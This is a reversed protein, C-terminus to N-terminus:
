FTDTATGWSNCMERVPTLVIISTHGDTQSKSIIELAAEIEGQNVYKLQRDKYKQKEGEAQILPIHVFNFGVEPVSAPIPTEYKGKYIHRNLLDAIDRPVRYQTTLFVKAESSSVASVDLLSNVKEPLPTPQAKRDRNGSGPCYPPLQHVDGVVILSVIKCGLRSLGFVEYSPICGGEDFIVVTERLDKEDMDPIIDYAPACPLRHISGITCMHLRSKAFLENTLAVECELVIIDMASAESVMKEAPERLFLGDQLVDRLLAQLSTLIRETRDVQQSTKWGNPSKKKENETRKPLVFFTILETIDALKDIIEETFNDRGILLTDEVAQLTASVYEIVMSPLSLDKSRRQSQRKEDESNGGPLKLLMQQTLFNLQQTALRNCPKWLQSQKTRLPAFAPHYRESLALTLLLHTETKEDTDSV